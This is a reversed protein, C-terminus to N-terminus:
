HQTEQLHILQGGTIWLLEWLEEMYENPQSHNQDAVLSKAQGGTYPPYLEDIELQQTPNRGLAVPKM